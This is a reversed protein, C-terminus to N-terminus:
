PNRRRRLAWLLSAPCTADAKPFTTCSTTYFFPNLHAVLQWAEPLRDITYFTGSQFAFPTVVFNTM